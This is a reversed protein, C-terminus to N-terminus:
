SDQGPGVKKVAPGKQDITRAPAFPIILEEISVLSDQRTALTESRVMAHENPAGQIATTAKFVIAASRLPAREVGASAPESAQNPTPKPPMMMPRIASRIPTRQVTMNPATMIQTPSAIEENPAGHCSKTPCPRNM